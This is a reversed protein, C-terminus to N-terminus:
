RSRKARAAAVVARMGGQARLEQIRRWRQRVTKRHLAAVQDDVARDFETVEILLPRELSRRVSLEADRWGEVPVHQQSTDVPHRNYVATPRRSDSVGCLVAIRMLFDWDEVVPLDTRFHVGLQRVPFMPFAFAHIPTRNIVLHALVSWPDGYEVESPTSCTRTLEIAGPADVMTRTVTSVRLVRGPGSDELDQFTAVWEATVYDDDDLIAAYRGTALETGRHLPQGRHGGRVREAYAPIEAVAAFDAVQQRTVDFQDDDAGHVLVIVDFDRSTQASLCLLAEDLERPRDGTTRILVTLFRGDQRTWAEPDCSERLQPAFFELFEVLAPPRPSHEGVANPGSAAAPPAPDSADRAM